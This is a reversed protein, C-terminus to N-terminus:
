VSVSVKLERAINACKAEWEEYTGDNLVVRTILSRERMIDLYRQELPEVPKHGPRWVEWLVGGEALWREGQEPLYVRNNVALSPMTRYLQDEVWDVFVYGGHILLPRIHEKQERNETFASYGLIDRCQQDFLRKIINGQSHKVFGHEVGLADALTDKGSAAVGVLGIMM